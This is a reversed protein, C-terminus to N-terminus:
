RPSRALCPPVQHASGSPYTYASRPAVLELGGPGSAGLYRKQCNSGSMECAQVAEAETCREQRGGEGDERVELEALAVQEAAEVERGRQGEKESREVDGRVQRSEERGGEPGGIGGSGRELAEHREGGRVQRAEREGEREVDHGGEEADEGLADM